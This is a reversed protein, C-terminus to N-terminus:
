EPNITEAYAMTKYYSEDIHLLPFVELKKIARIDKGLISGPM